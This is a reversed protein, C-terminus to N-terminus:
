ALILKFKRIRPIQGFLFLRLKRTEYSGTFDASLLFQLFNEFYIWVKVGDQKNEPGIVVKPPKEAGETKRKQRFVGNKTRFFTRKCTRHGNAIDAFDASKRGFNFSFDM